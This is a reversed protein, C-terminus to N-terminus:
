KRCRHCPRLEGEWGRQRLAEAVERAVRCPERVVDRWGYRLTAWGLRLVTRNDRRRDRDADHFERGDLEIVLRYEEHSGDFVAGRLRADQRTLTPLRHAREVWMWYHWELISHVGGGAQTALDVVTHRHHARTASTFAEVVARSTTRGSALAQTVAAVTEDQGVWLSHDVLAEPVPLRPPSGMGLRHGQRFQVRHEGVWFHRRVRGRPLWIPILTPDGRTIGHLRLAAEGGAVAGDGGRLLGAWLASEWTPEVACVIGQGLRHWGNWRLRRIVDYSLGSATIQAVTLVGAQQAALQMLTCPLPTIRM